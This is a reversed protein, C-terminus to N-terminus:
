GLEDTAGRKIAELLGSSIEQGLASAIGPHVLDGQYLNVGQILAPDAAIAGLLGNEGINLLYPLAANAVARSTTRAISATLNPVCHHIVGEAVYAPDRLTTPRSTEVCGGQDISFDMIVSGPRMARVMERTILVPARQGHVFVAGILVDAFKVVRKLNYENSFMTTVRGGFEQDFQRLKQTSKDLVIVEAGVGVFARAANLGLIGGGVIVVAAPPVGPLGSLLIGLGNRGGPFFKDSRLLDAAVFPALRGAVESATLLVPHRGDTKALMEYAVATINHEKLAQLLDPSAVSLHLFSFIMQGPRFYKYEAASPRAIKVVIDARGYAEAASYVIQGGAHRFDEDSFGAGVGADREIYVTHGAEVLALVIDPTLGVRMELDRVERPVGFETM